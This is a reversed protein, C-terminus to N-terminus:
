KIKSLDGRFLFGNGSFNLGGKTPSTLTVRVTSGNASYSFSDTTVGGVVTGSTDKLTAGIGTNPNGSVIASISPFQATGCNFSSMTLVQDKITIDISPYCQKFEPQLLKGSVDYTGAVDAFCNLSTFLTIIKFISKM